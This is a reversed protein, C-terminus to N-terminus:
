LRDINEWPSVVFEIADRFVIVHVPEPEVLAAWPTSDAIVAASGPLVRQNPFALGKDYFTRDCIGNGWYIYDNATVFEPAPAVITGDDAPLTLTAVFESGPVGVRTTVTDAVRAHEVTSAKTIVDVPDMSGKSSRADIVMYRPAGTADAVYVSWEARLGNALGSVRYVNLALLHAPEDDVVCRIPTVDFGAPLGLRRALGDVQDPRIRFMFYISPPDAEVTFRVYPQERGIAIKFGQMLAMQAYLFRKLAKRGFRGRRTLPAVLAADALAGSVNGNGNVGTM